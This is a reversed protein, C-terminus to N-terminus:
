PVWIGEVGVHNAVVGVLCKRPEAFFTGVATRPHTNVEAVVFIMM